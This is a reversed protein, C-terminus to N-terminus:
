KYKSHKYLKIIYISQMAIVSGTFEMDLEPFQNMGFEGLIGCGLATLGGIKLGALLGVPGGICTGLLAGALPYAAAKYKAAKELFRAGKTVNIHTEEINEEVSGVM